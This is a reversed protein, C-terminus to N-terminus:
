SAKRENAKEKRMRPVSTKLLFEIISKKTEKSLQM